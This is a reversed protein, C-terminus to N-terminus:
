KATSVLNIRGAASLVAMQVPWVLSRWSCFFNFENIYLIELIRVYTLFINNSLTSKNGIRDYIDSLVLM